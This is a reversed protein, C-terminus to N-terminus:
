VVNLAQFVNGKIQHSSGNVVGLQVMIAKSFNGTWNCDVRDDIILIDDVCTSM